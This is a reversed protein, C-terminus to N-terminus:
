HSFKQMYKTADEVTKKMENKFFSNMESIYYCTRRIDYMSKEFSSTLTKRAEQLLEFERRTIEDLNIDPRIEKVKIRFAKEIDEQSANDIIGLIKYYDKFEEM